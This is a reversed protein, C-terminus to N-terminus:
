VDAGPPGVHALSFEDCGRLVSGKSLVNKKLQVGVIHQSSFPLSVIRCQKRGYKWSLAHSGQKGQTNGLTSAKMKGMEDGLSYLYLTWDVRGLLLPHM